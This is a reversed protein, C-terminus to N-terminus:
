PTTAVRDVLEYRARHREPGAASTGDLYMVQRTKGFEPWEPVGPGNPSGTKVFNAFARAMTEATRRDEAQWDAKKSDLTNFAYEIEVAHAAGYRNSGNADPLVRDFRYRYVPAQGTQAHVEMWKWTSYAIFLDSSLDAASQLVDTDNSAPYLELAAKAHPGFQKTIQESFTAPTPKQPNMAVAM